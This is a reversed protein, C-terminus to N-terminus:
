WTDWHIVADPAPRAAPRFDTGRTYALPFLCVQQVSDYPIGIIDAVEKEKFLHITTWSTGLGRARAALMFSWTAPLINALSSAAVMAPGSDLRGANTCAIVLVPAEGMHAALYQASDLVRAQQALEAETDRVHKAAFSPLERYIEWAEGYLKGIAGRKTADRVVVFQMTINNSGSPAQLALSVCERVVDDPVPRTLDLRKRVARTTSLLEDPTLPLLTM